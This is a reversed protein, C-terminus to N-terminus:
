LSTGPMIKKLNSTSNAPFPAPHSEVLQDTCRKVCPLRTLDMVSPHDWFPPLSSTGGTDSRAPFPEEIHSTETASRPIVGRAQPPLSPTAILIFSPAVPTLFQRASSRESFIPTVPSHFLLMPLM